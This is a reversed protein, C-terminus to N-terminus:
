WRFDRDFSIEQIGLTTHKIAEAKSPVYTHAFLLKDGVEIPKYSPLYIVYSNLYVDDVKDEKLELPIIKCPLDTYIPTDIHGLVGGQNNSQVTQRLITVSNNCLVMELVARIKVDLYYDETIKSIIFKANDPFTLTNGNVFGAEPDAVAVADQKTGGAFVYNLKKLPKQVAFDDTVITSNHAKAAVKKLLM